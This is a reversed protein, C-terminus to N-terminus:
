TKFKKLTDRIKQKDNRSPMLDRTSEKISDTLRIVDIDNECQKLFENLEQYTKNDKGLMPILGIITSLKVMTHIADPDAGLVNKAELKDKEEKERRYLREYKEAKSSLHKLKDELSSTQKSVKKIKGTLEQALEDAKKKVKEDFEEPSIWGDRDKVQKTLVAIREKAYELEKEKADFLRIAETESDRAEQLKAEYEESVAAIAAATASSTAGAPKPPGVEEYPQTKYKLKEAYPIEKLPEKETKEEATPDVVDYEDRLIERLVAGSDCSILPIDRNKAWETWRHNLASNTGKPVVIVVNVDKLEKKKPDKENTAVVYDDLPKGVQRSIININCVVLGKLPRTLKVPVIKEATQGM